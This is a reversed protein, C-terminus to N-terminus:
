TTVTITGSGNYYIYDGPQAGALANNMETLNLFPKRQSLPTAM